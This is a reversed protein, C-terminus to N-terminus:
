RSSAEQIESRFLNYRKLHQQLLNTAAAIEGETSGRQVRALIKQLKALVSDTVVAAGTEDLSPKHM